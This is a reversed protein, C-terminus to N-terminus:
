MFINTCEGNQSSFLAHWILSTILLHASYVLLIYNLWKASWLFLFVYFHLAFWPTCNTVLGQIDTPSLPASKKKKELKLGFFTNLDSQVRLTTQKHGMSMM